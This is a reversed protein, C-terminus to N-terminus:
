FAAMACCINTVVHRSFQRITEPPFAPWVVASEIRQIVVLRELTIGTSARQTFVELAERVFDDDAVLDTFHMVQLKPCVQASTSPLLARLFACSHPTQDVRPDRLSALHLHTVGVFNTLIRRWEALMIKSWDCQIHIDRITASRFGLSLLAMTDVAKRHLENDPKDIEVWEFELHIRPPYLKVQASPKRRGFGQVTFETRDPRHTFVASHLEPVMRLNHSRRPLMCVFDDDLDPLTSYCGIQATEPIDLHALIQAVDQPDLTLMVCELHSLPVPDRLPDPYRTTEFDLLPGADNLRLIELLPCRRLIDLFEDLTPGEEDWVGYNQMELVRINTPGALARFYVHYLYLRRLAPGIRIDMEIPPLPEDMADLSSDSVSLELIRLSLLDTPFSQLLEQMAEYPLSIYLDDLRAYGRDYLGLIHPTFGLAAHSETLTM